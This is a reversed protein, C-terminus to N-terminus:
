VKEKIKKKLLRSVIKGDARGRASEMVKGMFFGFSKEGKEKLIVKDKELIEEIIKELDKKSLVKLGLEEICDKVSRNPNSSLYSIVEPLVEKSFMDRSFSEFIDIFHNEALNNVAFGERKLTILTNTLTTAVLTPNIGYKNVIEEFLDTKDSRILSGAVEKNLKYDKMFRNLKEEFLEPLSRSIKELRDKTIVIPSVDTEPYMRQAGPLPRTYYTTGDPNASRTEELPGLFADGARNIVTKLARRAFDEKGAVLIICDNETSGTSKYLKKIEDDNIGYKELEEDTHLIGPVGYAIAHYSLEKGFTHDPCLEKKLIGSFGELKISLIKDKNKLIKSETDKFIETVDIIGPEKWKKNELIDQIEILSLQRKAEYEVYKALQKLEQVGKIEVRAGREISVNLDQRITGIGRMVKGTSRLIIGIKEAVERAHEPTIIDPSTGIEILPIGLGSLKYEAEKFGASVIRASEEELCINSIGIRGLSSDLYGSMGIILTRQFGTCNSGDIVTKRMVHIENPIDANVLMAIELGIDLAEQNVYPFPPEEDADILCTEEEFTQYEFVRDRYYEFSAAPDIEGLEGTVPRIKRSFISTPSEERMHSSCRCFLKPTDLRQHIEIGVKLGIDRYNIM